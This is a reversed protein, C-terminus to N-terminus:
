EAPHGSHAQKAILREEQEIKFKLWLGYGGFGAGTIAALCIFLFQSDIHM